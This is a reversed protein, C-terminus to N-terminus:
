GNLRGHEASVYLIFDYACQQNNAKQKKLIFIYIVHSGRQINRQLTECMTMVAHTLPSQWQEPGNDDAMRNTINSNRKTQTNNKEQSWGYFHIELMKSTVLIKELVNSSAKCDKQNAITLMMSAM